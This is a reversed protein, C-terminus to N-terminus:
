IGIQIPPMYIYICLSLSPSQDHNIIISYELNNLNMRTKWSKETQIYRNFSPGLHYTELIKKISKGHLGHINGVVPRLSGFSFLNPSYPINVKQNNFMEWIKFGHNVTSNRTWPIERQNERHNEMHKKGIIKGPGTSNWRGLRPVM